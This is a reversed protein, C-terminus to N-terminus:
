LQKRKYTYPGPRDFINLKEILENFEFVINAKYQPGFPIGRNSDILGTLFLLDNLSYTESGLIKLKEIAEVKNLEPSPKANPESSTEVDLDIMVQNNSFGTINLNDFDNLKKKLESFKM